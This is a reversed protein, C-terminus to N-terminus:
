INGLTTNGLATLFLGQNGSASFGYPTALATSNNGLSTANLSGGASIDLRNALSGISGGANLTVDGGTAVNLLASASSAGTAVEGAIGDVISGGGNALLGANINVDGTASRVPGTLVISSTGNPNGNE